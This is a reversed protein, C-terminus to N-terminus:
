LLATCPVAFDCINKRKPDETCTQRKSQGVLLMRDDKDARIYSLTDPRLLESARTQCLKLPLFFVIM